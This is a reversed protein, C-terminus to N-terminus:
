GFIRLVVIDAVSADTGCLNITPDHLLTLDPGVPVNLFACLFLGGSVISDLEWCVGIDATVDCNITADDIFHGIQFSKNLKPNAWLLIAGLFAWIILGPKKETLLVVWGMAAVRTEVIEIIDVVSSEPVPLPDQTM